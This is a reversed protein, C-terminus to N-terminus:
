QARKTVILHTADPTSVRETVAYGLVPLDIGAFLNEGKGLFLPSVALHMEDILRANLYQQVTSVGGGVRIDRGKAATKAQQLASVIGDTVFHFVTGGEMTLPPRPHHTLVFAPVHYPPNDGWWGKWSEDPWPGRVPGFMNRGMIWAGINEFGRKAFDDDIGTTGEETGHVSQFTRTPLFWKHLREGSEGLPDTTSQNPGAGYGDLSITFSNVILKSM